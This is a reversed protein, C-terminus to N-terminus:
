DELELFFSEGDLIEEEDKPQLKIFTLEEAKAKCSGIGLLPNRWELFGRSVTPLFM